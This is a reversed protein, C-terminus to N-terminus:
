CYSMEGARLDRTTDRADLVMVHRCMVSKSFFAWNSRLVVLQLVLMITRRRRGVGGIVDFSSCRPGSGPAGFM